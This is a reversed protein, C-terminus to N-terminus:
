GTPKQPVSFLTLQEPSPFPDSKAHLRPEPLRKVLHWEVSSWEWLKMQPSAYGTQFVQGDKVGAIHKKDPQYKVTYQTLPRNAYELTITEGYLWVTAAKGMLGEEGYLRWHRFRISGFRDIGRQFQRSFFVRHMRQEDYIGGQVWGLVQAPSTKGDDRQRHAWHDQYNHETMWREHVAKAGEWSTTQDFYHDALRRQLNFQTEILNQWAQKKDIQRKEIGLAAYIQLAQKAKFIAGSDSVLMTPTGHHRIAAYLVILYATLDQRQMIESALMARSFNDLVSIIYFPGPIEAIHHHEIYRVDVSWIHHRYAAKFPHERPSSTAAIPADMGYLQRNEAMIRGCTSQSVQIGLRKLASQVRFAGLGPNEQLKRVENKVRIDVKRVPRTNARSKDPLGALDEEQWRKLVEHVTSRAMDLYQAIAPRSWGQAHLLVVARRRQFGDPIQAYPPYWRERTTPPPGHALVDKITHHSPRRQYQIYCIQAIDRLSLGPCQAHVDVILQRLPPPLTRQDTASPLSPSHFLSTMGEQDFANAHRRVTREAEGTRQARDAPTDGFLVVPRIREYKLQETWLCLQRLEAWEETHVRQPRAPM